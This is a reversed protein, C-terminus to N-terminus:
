AGLRILARGVAGLLAAAETGGPTRGHADLRNALRELVADRDLGPLVGVLDVAMVALAEALRVPPLDPPAEAAAQLALLGSATTESM